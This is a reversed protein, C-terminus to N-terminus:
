CAADLLMHLVNFGSIDLRQASSMETAVCLFHFVIAFEFFPQKNRQLRLPPSTKGCAPLNRATFCRNGDENHLPPIGQEGSPGRIQIRSSNRNISLIGECRRVMFIYVRREESNSRKHLPSPLPSEMRIVEM